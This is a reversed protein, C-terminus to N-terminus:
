PRQQKQWPEQREITPFGVAPEVGSVAIFPEDGGVKMMVLLPESQARELHDSCLRIVIRLRGSVHEIVHDDVDESECLAWACFSQSVSLAASAESQWSQVRM